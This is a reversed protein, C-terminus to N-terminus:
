LRTDLDLTREKKDIATNPCKTEDTNQLVNNDNQGDQNGNVLVTTKDLDISKNDDAEPLTTMSLVNTDDKAWQQVEGKAFIVFILGGAVLIAIAIYFVKRWEDASGQEYVVDVTTFTIHVYIQSLKEAGYLLKTRSALENNYAPAM